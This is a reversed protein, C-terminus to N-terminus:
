PTTRQTRSAIEPFLVKELKEALKGYEFHEVAARYGRAGMVVRREVSMEKIELVAKALAFPDEAPVCRGVKYRTVPDNEGSYSNIIPRGSYLYEPIKNAAIGFRYLPSDRWCILCVDFQALMSQIQRKPIAQVLHINDLGREAINAALEDRMRGRGVIVFAIDDRDKLLDATEVMTKLANATGISGTYGVLFRDTPLQAATTPDLHDPAVVEDLSFGNPVWTFKSRDMGRGVMHEVAGPLNSVIADATLYARDEVRQMWAILPNHASKGGLDRLTQPWIDRVEFVMRAGAKRALRLAGPYGLLSPSSYLITDPSSGLREPLHRLGRGFIVWNLIRLKDHAHTYHPVPVRAFRYGDLMEIEPATEANENLLHHWQAAILTVEHGRRALERSLYHHRGAMGTQPTSSYQNIIWVVSM